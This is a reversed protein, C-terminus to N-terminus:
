LGPTNQGQLPFSCWGARAPCLMGPQALVVPGEPSLYFHGARVCRRLHARWHPLIEEPDRASREELQSALAKRVCARWGKRQPLVDALTLPRGDKWSWVDYRRCVRRQGDGEEVAEWCLSLAAEDSHTVSWTFSARWPTFPRAASLSAEEAECARRYLPGTWRALWSQCLRVYYREVRRVATGEGALHPRSMSLELVARGECALTRDDHLPQILLPEASM